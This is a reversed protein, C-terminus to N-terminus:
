EEEESSLSAMFEFTQPDTQPQKKGRTRSTSHVLSEQFEQDVIPEGTNPKVQIAKDDWLAIMEFDKQCTIKLDGLGHQKLWDRVRPIEAEGHAARATCIRVEQGQELWGKVRKMMAPIPDGIDPGQGRKYYALTGDLDVGIWGAM